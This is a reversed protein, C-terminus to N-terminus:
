RKLLCRKRPDTRAVRHVPWDHSSSERQVAWDPGLIAIEEARPHCCPRGSVNFDIQATVSYHRHLLVVVPRVTGRMVRNEQTPTTLVVCLRYLVIVTWTPSRAVMTASGASTELTATRNCPSLASTTTVSGCDISLAHAHCDAFGCPYRPQAVRTRSSQRPHNNAEFVDERQLHLTVFSPAHCEIGQALNIVLETDIDRCLVKM